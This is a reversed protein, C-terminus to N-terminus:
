GRRRRAAMLGGLGFFALSSPAPVLIALSTTDGDPSFSTALTEIFSFSGTNMDISGLEFHGNDINQIAAYLTGDFYELSMGDGLIGTSGILTSNLSGGFGSVSYLSVSDDLVSRGLAYFTSSNSDYASGGFTTDNVGIAGLSTGVYTNTDIQHISQGGDFFGFLDSGVYTLSTYGNGATTGQLNLTPSGFPNDLNYIGITNATSPSSAIVNGNSDTTMGVIDESMTFNSVGSGSSYRFLQDGNTALFTPAVGGFAPSVIAAGTLTIILRARM